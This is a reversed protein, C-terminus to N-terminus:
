CRAPAVTNSSAPFSRCSLSPKSIKAAAMATPCGNAPSAPITAISCRPSRMSACAMSMITDGALVLRQRDPIRAGRQPRSQLYPTGIRTFDRARTAISTSSPATSGLWAMRMARSIRRCGTSSSASAPKIAPPRRFARFGAPSGLQPEARVPQAAPLGLLRRLSAGHDADARSPHLRSRGCLPDAEPRARVLSLLRRETGCGPPRM